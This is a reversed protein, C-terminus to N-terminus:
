QMLLIHDVMFNKYVIQKPLIINVNEMLLWVTVNKFNM